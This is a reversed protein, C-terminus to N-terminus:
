VSIIEEVSSFSSSSRSIVTLVIFHLRFGFEPFYFYLVTVVAADTPDRQLNETAIKQGM